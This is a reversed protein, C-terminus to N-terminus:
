KKGYFLKTNKNAEIIESERYAGIFGDDFQVNYKYKILTDKGINVITGIKNITNTYAVDSDVDCEIIFVKDGKKFENKAM